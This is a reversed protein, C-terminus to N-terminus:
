FPHGPSPDVSASGLCSGCTHPENPLLLVPFLFFCSHLRLHLRAGAQDWLLEPALVMSNLYSPPAKAGVGALCDSDVLLWTGPPLSLQELGLLKLEGSTELPLHCSQPGLGWLLQFSVGESWFLLDWPTQSPCWFYRSCHNLSYTLAQRPISIGFTQFNGFSEFIDSILILAHDLM